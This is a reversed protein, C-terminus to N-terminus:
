IDVYNYLYITELPLKYQLIHLCHEGPFNKIKSWRFQHAMKCTYTLGNRTYLQNAIHIQISFRILIIYYSITFSFTKELCSISAHM